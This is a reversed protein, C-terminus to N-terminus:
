KKRVVILGDRIPLLVNEVREDATVKKNFTDIAITDEDLDGRVVKGRWLVNDVLLLGGPNLREMLLEYYYDNDKKGADIFVIDFTADITPIIEKADGIHLTIESELEAKKIYKRILYELEKNVEIAHLRGGSAMGRALCISAYGTFTGVELISKAQIMSSLMYLLQGQLPGCIMQPSLTKLNTERDLENLVEDAASTHEECYHQLKKQFTNM